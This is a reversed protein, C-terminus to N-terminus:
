PFGFYESTVHGLAVEDVVYRVHGSGHEFGPRRLQFGAVLQPM